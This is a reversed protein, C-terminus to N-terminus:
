VYLSLTTNITKLYSGGFINLHVLLPYLNCVDVRDKWNEQLPWAENYAAYFKAHFGGFLKTMAIDMERHGFYVAPDYIVPLGKTDCLFNGNWLDGHLLAPVEVPFIHEIKNFLIQFKDYIERSIRKKALAINLQPLIREDRFFGAWSGHQKNSQEFSGIYNDHDLGYNANTIKHLAALARGFKEWFFIDEHGSEIYEQVLYSKGNFNGYLLIEPVRFQDIQRLLDLGKKEKEFLAPFNEEINRKLFFKGSSTDLIFCENISGGNVTIAGRIVIPLGTIKALEDQLFLTFPSIKKVAM